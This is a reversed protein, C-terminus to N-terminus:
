ENHEAELIRQLDVVLRPVASQVINWVVELDVDFYAHILRNRTGALQAWPIEAFEIRTPESVQKAAEGIIELPKTVSLFKEENAYFASADIGKVIRLVRTSADLM